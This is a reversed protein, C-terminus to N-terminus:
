KDTIIVKYNELIVTMSEANRLQGDKPRNMIAKFRVEAVPKSSMTSLDLVAPIARGNYFMKGEGVTPQIRYDKSDVIIFYEIWNISPNFNLFAEPIIRAVELTIEKGNNLIENSSSVLDGSAEFTKAFFSLERIGIAYRVRHWLTRFWEKNIQYGSDNFNESSSSSSSSSSGGSLAKDLAIGGAAILAGAIMSTVSVAQDVSGKTVAVNTGVMGGMTGFIGGTSRTNDDAQSASSNTNTTAGTTTGALLSTNNGGTVGDAVTELYGFEIWETMRGRELHSASGSTSTTNTKFGGVSGSSSSKSESISKSIKKLLQVNKLPFPNPIAVDQFLDIEIEYILTDPPLTWIGKGRYAFKNNTGIRSLHKDTLSGSSDFTIKNGFEKDFGPLVQFESTTSKYRIQTVEFSSERLDGFLFPDLLIYNMTVDASFKIYITCSLSDYDPHTKVLGSVSQTAVNQANAYAAQRAAPEIASDASDHVQTQIGENVPTYEIEWLTQPNGDFMRQRYELMQEDSASTEVYLFDKRTLTKGYQDSEKLGVNNLDAAKFATASPLRDDFIEVDKSIRYKDIAANASYGTTTAPVKTMVITSVSTSNWVETPKGDSGLPVTRPNGSSDVWGSVQTGTTGYPTISTAGTYAPTSDGSKTLNYTVVTTPVDVTTAGPAQGPAPGMISGTWVKEALSVYITDKALKPKSTSITTNVSEIRWNGGEPRALSPVAFRFGEYPEPRIPLKDSDHLTDIQNRGAKKNKIRVDIIESTRNVDSAVPLEIGFGKVLHVPNEMLGFDMRSSDDFNDEIVIVGRGKAYFQVREVQDEVTNLASVAAALNVLTEESSIEVLSNQTILVNQIDRMERFLMDMSRTIRTLNGNFVSVDRWQVGQYMQPNPKITQLKKFFDFYERYAYDRLQELSVIEGNAIKGKVSETVEKTVADLLTSEINPLSSM